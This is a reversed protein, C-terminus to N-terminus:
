ISGWRTKKILDSWKKGFHGDHKKHCPVCLRLWDNIDRRYKHDKNAWHYKKATTSNCIDCKEPSGKIKYIWDHVGYYGVRDGKWSPSKSGSVDAHNLSIKERHEKSLRKGFFPHLSGRIKKRAEFLAINIKGKKSLDCCKRTCFKSRVRDKRVTYTIGCQLCKKILKNIKKPKSLENM